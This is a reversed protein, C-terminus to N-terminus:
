DSNMFGLINLIHTFLTVFTGYLLFAGFIASSGIFAQDGAQAGEIYMQKIEQTEWATIAAFILVVVCSIIVSTLPSKFIFVNALMAVLLGITAMALFSGMGSLDRKTTYGLLSMGGFTVATIMLARGVLHGMGKAFFVYVLPAIALGWMACYLWYAGHALVRNGSYIIKHAFFGLGLIGAFWVWKIPGVSLTALVKPNNMLALIVIATGAVGLAMYNYVRLMYARLGEDIAVTGVRGATGAQVSRYDYNAM